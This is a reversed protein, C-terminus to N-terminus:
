PTTAHSADKSLVKGASQKPAMRAPMFLVDGDHSGASTSGVIKLSSGGAVVSDQDFHRLFTSHASAGKTYGGILTDIRSLVGNLKTETKGHLVSLVGKSKTEQSPSPTATRQASSARHTSAHAETIEICTFAHTQKHTNMTACNVNQRCATCGFKRTRYAYLHIYTHEHTCVFLSAQM